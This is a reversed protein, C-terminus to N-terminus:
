YLFASNEDSTKAIEKIITKIKGISKFQNKSGNGIMMYVNKHKLVSILQNFTLNNMINYIICLIIIIILM